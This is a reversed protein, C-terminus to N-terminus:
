KTREPAENDPGVAYKSLDIGKAELDKIWAPKPGRKTWGEGTESNWFKYQPVDRGTVSHSENSSGVIAKLKEIRVNLGKLEDSALKARRASADAILAELQDVTLDSIDINHAMLKKEL